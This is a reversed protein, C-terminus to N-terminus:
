KRPQMNVPVPTAASELQRITGGLRYQKGNREILRAAENPDPSEPRANAVPANLTTQGRCRLTAWMGAWPTGGFSANCYEPEAAFTGFVDETSGLEAQGAILWGAEPTSFIVATWVTDTLVVGPPVDDVPLLYLGGDDPVGTFVFQAGPIATGTFPCGDYLEVFVDFAGGGNGYVAFDLYELERAGTGDLTMDDALTMGTGGVAVFQIPSVTNEYRGLPCPTQGCVTDDGQYFGGNQQCALQSSSQCIGTSFCCAGVPCSGSCTTSAGGFGGGVNICLRREIDTCVGNGLCCAGVPNSVTLLAQVFLPIDAPDVQGNRNMDVRTARGMNAPGGALVAIFGQIDHGDTVGNADLDGRTNQILLWPREISHPGDFEPAVAAGVIWGGDNIGYAFSSIWIGNTLPGIYNTHLDIANGDSELMAHVRGAVFQAGVSDGFRNVSFLAPNPYPDIVHLSGRYFSYSADGDYVVAMGSENLDGAYLYEGATPVLYYSDTNSEYVYVDTAIQSAPQAAQILVAGSTNAAVAVGPIDPALGPPQLIRSSNSARDWLTPNGGQAGCEVAGVVYRGDATIDQIMSLKTGCPPDVPLPLRGIGSQCVYGRWDSVAIYGGLDVVLFDGSNTQDIGIGGECALSFDQVAGATWLFNLNHPDTRGFTRDRTAVSGLVAGSNSVTEASGARIFQRELLDFLTYGSPCLLIHVAAPMVSSQGRPNTIVFDWAGPAAGSVYLDVIVDNTPFFGCCDQPPPRPIIRCPIDPQGSQTLKVISGEVLREGFIHASFVPGCNNITTGAFSAGTLTPGPCDAVMLAGVLAASQNDPYTAALDWAGAAADALPFRVEVQSDGVFRNIWGDIAPQGDRVLQFRLDAAFGVGSITVTAWGCNDPAPPDVAVVSALQPTPYSAQPLPRFALGGEHGGNFSLRDIARVFAGTVGNFEYIKELLSVGVFLNGNDGFALSWCFDGSVGAFSPLTAGTTGDFQRVVNHDAVLLHGTTPHFAIARPRTWGSASGDVFVRILSGSPLDYELVGDVAGPDIENNSLVFLHGNPGIALSEVRGLGGAGSQIFHSPSQSSGTDWAVIGGNDGILLRGNAGPEFVLKKSYSWVLRLFAGTRADFESVVFADLGLDKHAVFLNGNPGGFTLDRVTDAMLTTAFAGLPEGNTATHHFIGDNYEAIFLDGSGGCPMITVAGPIVIPSSGPTEIVIDWAGPTTGTVDFWMDARCGSSVDCDIAGNAAAVDTHGARRLLIRSNRTVEGGSVRLHYPSACNSSVAPSAHPPCWTVEFGAPLSASSAGDSVVVDWAGPQVIRLNFTATLTTSSQVVVSTGAIDPQGARRLLVSAGAAFGQGTITAGSLPGCNNAQSPSIGTVALPECSTVLLSNPQIASQGDVYSVNLNWLGPAVGTVNFNATLSTDPSSATITGVIDPQGSRTLTLRAYPVLGTGSIIAGTLAQCNDAQAPVMGAIAPTPCGAVCNKYALFTPNSLGSVFTGLVAGTNRDFRIISNTNRSVVHLHGGPQPAIALGQPSDLGGGNAFVRVFAGSTGDFELVNDTGASAVFLNSNPGFVLGRPDSLGGGSAFVGLAAGTTGDFQLVQNSSSSVFLNGNPGFDLGSPSTLGGGSAFVRVFAGTQGHYELVQHTLSSAVFLNGTPGFALGWPGNLGGGSAFLGTVQGTQGNCRLVIDSNESAVYLNADPGFAVGRWGTFSFSTSFTGASAGTSADFQVVSATGTTVYLDGLAGKEAANAASALVFLLVFPAARNGISGVRFDSRPVCLLSDTETVDSMQCEVEMM